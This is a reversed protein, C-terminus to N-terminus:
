KKFIKRHNLDLLNHPHIKANSNFSSRNKLSLIEKKIEDFYNEPNKYMKIM